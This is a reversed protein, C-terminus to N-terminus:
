WRWRFETLWQGRGEPELALFEREADRMEEFFATAIRHERTGPAFVWPQWPYGSGLRHQREVDIIHGVVAHATERSPVDRPLEHRALEQRHLLKLPLPAHGVKHNLYSGVMSINSDGQHSGGNRECVLHDRSVAWSALMPDPLVSYPVFYLQVGSLWCRQELNPERGLRKTLRPSVWPTARQQNRRVIEDYELWELVPDEHTGGTMVLLMRNTYKALFRPRGTEAELTVPPPIVGEAIKWNRLRKRNNRGHRV